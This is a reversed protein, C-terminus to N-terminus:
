EVRLLTRENWGRSRRHSDIVYCRDGAFKLYLTAMRFITEMTSLGNWVLKENENRPDDILATTLSRDGDFRNLDFPLLTLTSLWVLLSYRTCWNDTAISGRPIIDSPSRTVAQM